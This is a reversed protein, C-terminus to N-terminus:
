TPENWNGENREVPGDKLYTHKNNIYIVVCRQERWITVANFYGFAGSGVTVDNCRHGNVRICSAVAFQNVFQNRPVSPTLRM